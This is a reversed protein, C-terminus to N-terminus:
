GSPEGNESRQIVACRISPVFRPCIATGPNKTILPYRTVIMNPIGAKNLLIQCTYAIVRCNGKHKALGEYAARKGSLRSSSYVYHVNKHVWNFIARATEVDSGRKLKKL